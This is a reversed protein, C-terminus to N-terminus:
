GDARTIDALGAAIRELVQDAEHPDFDTRYRKRVGHDSLLHYETPEV